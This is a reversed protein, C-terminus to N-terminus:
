YIHCPMYEVPSPYWATVLGISLGQAGAKQYGVKLINWLAKNFRVVEKDEAAFSRVTRFNTIVQKFIASHDCLQWPSYRMMHTQVEEAVSVAYASSDSAKKTFTVTLKGQIAICVGMIPATGLM